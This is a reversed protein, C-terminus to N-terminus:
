VGAAEPTSFQATAGIEWLMQRALDGAQGKAGSQAELVRVGAAGLARLATAAHAAVTWDDDLSRALYRAADARRSRGLARAAMARVDAAEDSLAKLAHYFSRDDLGVTGLSKMAAARVEASDHAAWAILEDVAGTGGVLGLLEAAMATHEPRNRVDELVPRAVREGFGRLAEVVRARQHRTEDSLRDLLAAVVREDGIMGLSEVAAARVEEHEDDLRALVLSVSSRDRLLGLARVADARVWWRRDGLRGSWVERIGMRAVAAAVRDVVPGASVVKLPALLLDGVVDPDEAKGADVLADIASAPEPTALLQDVLPRLRRALRQRRRFRMEDLGRQALLYAFEAALLLGGALLFIELVNRFVAPNPAM